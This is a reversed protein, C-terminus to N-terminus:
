RFNGSNYSFNKQSFPLFSEESPKPPSFILSSDRPTRTNESSTLEPTPYTDPGTLATPAASGRCRAASTSSTIRCITAIPSDVRATRASSNTERIPARRRGPIEGGSICRHCSTRTSPGLTAQFIAFFVFAVNNLVFYM